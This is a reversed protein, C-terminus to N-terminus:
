SILWKFSQEVKSYFKVVIKTSIITLEDGVKSGYSLAKIRVYTLFVM